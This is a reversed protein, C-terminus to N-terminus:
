GYYLGRETKNAKRASIIRISEDRETYIVTVLLENKVKGIIVERSEYYNDRNDSFTIYKKDDFVRSAIKFSIGHKEVNSINKNENWEFKIM